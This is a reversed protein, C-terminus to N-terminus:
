NGLGYASTQTRHLPLAAGVAQGVAALILLVRHVGLKAKSTLSERAENHNFLSPTLVLLDKPTAPTIAAVIHQNKGLVKTSVVGLATAAELAFDGSLPVFETLYPWECFAEPLADVFVAGNWDTIGREAIAPHPGSSQVRMPVSTEDGAVFAPQEGMMERGPLRRSSEFPIVKAAITSADPWGMKFSNGM